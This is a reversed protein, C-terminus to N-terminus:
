KKTTDESRIPPPSQKPSAVCEVAESGPRESIKPGLSKLDFEVDLSQNGPFVKCADSVPLGASEFWNCVKTRNFHDERVAIFAAAYIAKQLLCASCGKPGVLKFHTDTQSVVFHLKARQVLAANTFTEPDTLRLPHPEKNLEGVYPKIALLGSLNLHWATCRFYGPEVAPPKGLTGERMRKSWEQPTLTDLSDIRVPRIFSGFPRDARLGELSVDFDVLEASPRLPLSQLGPVPLYGGVPINSAGIGLYSLLDVRRRILLSDFADLFNLDATYSVFGRPDPDWAKRAEVGAPYADAIIIFCGPAASGVPLTEQVASQHSAALILLSEIGLNDTPGGDILHEYGVPIPPRKTNPQVPIPFHSLTVSNFAGPFAASAVVAQSIPYTDLRSRLNVKFSEVTFPFRSGNMSNTANAIFIPHGPGLEKLKAYTAKHFLVDDFVDAMLDSRDKHTFLTTVFHHPLFSKWAWKRYFNSGMAQEAVRWDLDPGNLAYYAGAVGGGSTSSIATVHRMIGLENLQEMVAMSYNAARSGGGSLALGVFVPPVDKQGSMFQERARPVPFTTKNEDCTEIAKSSGDPASPIMTEPCIPENRSTGYPISGCGMFLIGIAIAAVTPRVNGIFVTKM